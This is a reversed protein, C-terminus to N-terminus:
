GFMREWVMAAAHLDQVAMGTFYSVAGKGRLRELRGLAADGVTMVRGAADRAFGIAEYRGLEDAVRFDGSRRAQDPHDVVVQRACLVDLDVQVTRPDGGIVSLHVDAALDGLGLVPTPTPVAAFVADAGDVCAAVSDTTWVEARVRHGVAREFARRNAATRSTARIEVPCLACDSCLALARAIRGTGLIAVARVAKPGLYRAGLAGAAGTRMNTIQEADLVALRGSRMDELEIVATREGLRGTAVDSREEIVKRARYRGPWEAPLELRFV